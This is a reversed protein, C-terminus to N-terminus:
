YPVTKLIRYGAQEDMMCTGLICLGTEIGHNPRKGLIGTIVQSGGEGFALLAKRKRRTAKLIRVLKLQGVFSV